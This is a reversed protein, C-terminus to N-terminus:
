DPSIRGGAPRNRSALSIGFVFGGGLPFLTAFMVDDLRLPRLVNNYIWSYALLLALQVASGIIFGLARQMFQLQVAPRNAPALVPENKLRWREHAGGWVGAVIMVIAYDLFGSRRTSLSGYSFLWVFPGISNCAAALQKRAPASKPCSKAFSALQSVRIDEYKTTLKTM